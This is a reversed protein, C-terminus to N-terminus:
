AAKSLPQGTEIHHFWDLNPTGAARDVNPAGIGCRLHVLDVTRTDSSIRATGTTNPASAHLHSASFAVLSGPPVVIYIAESWDVAEQVTPLTPYGPEKMARRWDWGESDNAIPQNWYCPFIAMTREPTIEYFPLWWNIQCDLGAGWSDRHPPLAGFGPVYPTDFPPAGRLSLKDIFTTEPDAGAAIVTHHYLRGIDEDKRFQARARKMRDRYADERLTEFAMTPPLGGFVDDLIRRTRKVLEAVEPLAEFVLIRGAFIKEAFIGPAVGAASYEIWDTDM